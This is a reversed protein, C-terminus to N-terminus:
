NKMAGQCDQDLVIMRLILPQWRRSQKTALLRLAISVKLRLSEM